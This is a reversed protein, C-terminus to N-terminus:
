ASWLGPAIGDTRGAVVGIMPTVELRLAKEV